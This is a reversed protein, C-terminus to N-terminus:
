EKVVERRIRWVVFAYYSGLVLMFIDAFWLLIWGLTNLPVDLFLLAAALLVVPVLAMICAFAVDLASLPANRIAFWEWAAYGLFLLGMIRWAIFPILPGDGLVSELPGPAAVLVIGLAINLWMDYFLIRVTLANYDDATM